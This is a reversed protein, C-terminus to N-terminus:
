THRTSSLLLVLCPANQIEVRLSLVEAQGPRNSLVKRHTHTYAFHRGECSWGPRRPGRHGEQVRPTVSAGLVGAHAGTDWPKM